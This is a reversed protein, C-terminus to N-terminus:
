CVFGGIRVGCSPSFCNEHTNIPLVAFLKITYKQTANRLLPFDKYYVERGCMRHPVRPDSAGCTFQPKSRQAAAAKRAALIRYGRMVSSPSIKITYREAACGTRCELTAQAALSNRSAGSRPPRRGPPWCGIGKLRMVSSTFCGGKDQVRIPLSQFLRVM